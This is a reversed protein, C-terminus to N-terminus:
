NIILDSVELYELNNIALSSEIQINSMFVGPALATMAAIKSNYEPRDTIMVFFVTCGQSHGIYHINTQNTIKLAFDINAPLDYKGIEHFSFDWYEPSRDPDLTTHGRSFNTGRANGIWM